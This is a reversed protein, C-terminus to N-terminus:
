WWFHASLPEGPRTPGGNLRQFRLEDITIKSLGVTLWIDLLHLRHRIQKSLEATRQYKIWAFMLQTSITMDTGTTGYITSVNGSTRKSHRAFHLDKDQILLFRPSLNLSLIKTAM